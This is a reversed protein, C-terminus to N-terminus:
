PGSVQPNYFGVAWNSLAVTQNPHLEKKRTVRERTLGHIFERGPAPFTASGM